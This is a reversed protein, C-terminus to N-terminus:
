YNIELYGSLVTGLGDDIVYFYTGPPVPTGNYKGDWTNTYGARNFVELGSANFIQVRNNPYREINEITFYDNTGDGNPSFGNFVVLDSEVYIIRVMATGCGYDSHCVQYLFSDRTVQADNATYQVTKDPNVLLTGSLAPTVIVPASIGPINLDNYLVDVKISQGKKVIVEDDVAIAQESIGKAVIRIVLWTTDRFGLHDTIIVSLRDTGLVDLAPTYIGTIGTVGATYTGLIPAVHIKQAHNVGPLQLTSIAIPDISTNKVTTLRMTDTTLLPSKGCANLIDFDFLRVCGFDLDHIEVKYNGPSLNSRNRQDSSAPLDLWDFRYNGSGSTLTIDISGGTTCDADEVVQDMAFKRGITVNIKGTNTCGASDTYTVSYLGTRDITARPIVPNVKDSVFSKPGSWAATKAGIVWLKLTDDQCVPSNSMVELIPKGLIRVSRSATFSCLGNNVTLTYTGSQVPAANNISISTATSTFGNPGTWQYSVTRNSPNNLTTTLQVSGGECYNVAGNIAVTLINVNVDISRTTPCGTGMATVSYTGAQAAGVNPITITRTSAKFGNPGSWNWASGGDATLTITEGSCYTTKGNIVLAIRSMIRVEVEFEATCNGRSIVVNYMGEDKPNATKIQPNALTSSFGNPGTWQYSDGGEAMFQVLDGMCVPSNAGAAADVLGQYVHIKQTKTTKNGCADTVTFTRTLDYECGTGPASQTRTIVLQASPTCNDTGTLVPMAPIIEGATIDVTIDAPVSVFQPAETDVVSITQTGIITNGCADTGTWTRILNYNCGNDRRDQSYSITVSSSLDDTGTVTAPTPVANCAVTIDAPVGALVPPKNDGVKIKQTATTQNGCGDTARWTRILEYGCSLDNRTQNYTVPVPSTLDDTATVTAPTPIAATNVVTVDAPVGVLVPAQNDGVTILQTASSTNGCGDTATWTRILEYGCSLNNRTQNYTVPVPSTLDDTATVTAVAPVAGANAVTVDAPVGVLVPAQNDRVTIKQTGVTANGCGDTATWTRILEYGCSL